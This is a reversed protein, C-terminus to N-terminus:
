AARRDVESLTASAGKFDLPRRYRRRRDRPVQPSNGSPSVPFAGRALCIRGCARVLRYFRSWGPQPPLGRFLGVRRVGLFAMGAARAMSNRRPRWYRSGAALTAHGSPGAKASFSIRRPPSRPRGGGRSSEAAIRCLGSCHPM